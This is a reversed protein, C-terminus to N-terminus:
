RKGGLSRADVTVNMGAYDSASGAFSGTVPIAQSPLRAVAVRVHADAALIGCTPDFGKWGAGPLYLEAWAHTSDSRGAIVDEADTRCLYGSVYRAAVGLMRATELFLLALDRCSGNRRDLTEAPTQVGIEERREYHFSLSVLRNLEIFFDLTQSRGTPSLLPKVWAQMAPNDSAHGQDLFPQVDAREEDRYRFPLEMATPELVFDFPNTNFQDVVLGSQISLQASPEEFDVLAVSNDYVDRVWRIRGPPEMTLESSRIQVDHGEIARVMLRHPGFRVPRRYQYVTTHAISLLM